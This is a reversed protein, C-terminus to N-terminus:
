FIGITLRQEGIWIMRVAWTDILAGVAFIADTPQIWIVYAIM